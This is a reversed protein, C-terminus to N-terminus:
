DTTALHSWDQNLITLMGHIKPDVCSNMAATTTCNM